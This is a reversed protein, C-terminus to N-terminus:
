NTINCIAPDKKVTFYDKLHFEFEYWKSCIKMKTSKSVYRVNYFICLRSHDRTDKNLFSSDLHIIRCNFMISKVPNINIVLSYRKQLNRLNKELRKRSEVCKGRVELRKINQHLRMLQNTSLQKLNKMRANWKPCLIAKQSEVSSEIM